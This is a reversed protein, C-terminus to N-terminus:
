CQIFDLLINDPFDEGVKRLFIIMNNKKEINSKIFNINETTANHFVYPSTSSTMRSWDTLTTNINEISDLKNYFKFIIAFISENAVCGNSIVNFLKNKNVSFNLCGLVYDKSLIFYPTNKLHFRKDLLHLNAKKHYNINWTAKCWSLYSKNYNNLFLTRFLPPPIIPVCSDTLFCFWQNENDNKYAYSM